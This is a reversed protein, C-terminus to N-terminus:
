EAGSSDFEIRAVYWEEDMKVLWLPINITVVTEKKTETVITEQDITLHIYALNDTYAFFEKLQHNTFDKIKGQYWDNNVSLITTCFSSNKPFYKKIEKKMSDDGACYSAHAELFGIAKAQCEEILSDNSVLDHSYTRTSANYNLERTKGFRDTAIVSDETYAFDIYYKIMTPLTITELLPEYESFSAAIQPIFDLGEVEIDTYLTNEEGLTKGGFTLQMTAPATAYSLQYYLGGTAEDKQLQVTAGYRDSVLIEPELYLEGNCAYNVYCVPTDTENTSIKHQEAVPIGNVTVTMSSPVTVAFSKTPNVLLSVEDLTWGCFGHGVEIGDSVFSLTAVHEEDALVAYVPHQETYEGFLKGFTLETGEISDYFVTLLASIDEYPNEVTNTLYTQLKEAESEELISLSEEMFHVPRTEEYVALFKWLWSLGYFVLGSLALAYVICLIWFVPAKKSKTKNEM